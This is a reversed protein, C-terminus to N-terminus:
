APPAHPPMKEFCPLSRDIPHWAPAESTYIHMGPTFDGSEDFAGLKVPLFPLAAPESWLPTGCDPCYCRHGIAGSETTRSVKRPTGRLLKFAARPILAVYNPGGGAAKQCQACHCAGIGLPPASVTFRIAGCACGGSRSPSPHSM